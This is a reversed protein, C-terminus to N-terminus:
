FPLDDDASLVEFDNTTSTSVPADEEKLKKPKLTKATGNRVDDATVLNIFKVFEVKEGFDNIFEEERSRFGAVKGKLKKEDWDWHFGKNSEEISYMANEFSKKQSMFYPSDPNPITLRCVGKWKPSESPSNDFQKQFFGKYDGETIDFAIVLQAGWNFEDVKASKIQGVYNGAPISGAGDGYNKTAKYGDYAKM